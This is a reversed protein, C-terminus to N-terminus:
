GTGGAETGKETCCPKKVDVKNSTNYPNCWTVYVSNCPADDVM